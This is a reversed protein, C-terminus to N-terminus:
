YDLKCLEHTWRTDRVKFYSIKLKKADLHLILYDGGLLSLYQRSRTMISLPDTNLVRDVKNGFRYVTGCPYGAMKGSFMKFPKYRSIFYVKTNKSDSEYPTALKWEFSLDKTNIYQALDITEQTYGLPLKFLTEQSKLELVVDVMEPEIETVDLQYNAKISDYVKQPIQLEQLNAASSQFFTSFFLLLIM